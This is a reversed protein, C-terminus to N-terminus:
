TADNQRSGVIGATGLVIEADLEVALITARGGIGEGVVDVLDGGLDLLVLQDAVQLDVDGLHAHSGKVHSALGEGHLHDIRHGVIHAM